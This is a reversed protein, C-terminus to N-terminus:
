QGGEGEENRDGQEDEEIEATPVTYGLAELAAQMEADSGQTNEGASVPVIAWTVVAATAGSRAKSLVAGSGDHPRERLSDFRDMKDVIRIEADMVVDDAPLNPVVFVERNERLKSFFKMRVFDGETSVIQARTTDTPDAGVWASAIGGPVHFEVEIPKQPRGVPSVRFAQVVDRGLAEALAQRGPRVDAGSEALDEREHPDKDLNYVSEKGRSTVYKEGLAISAWQEPGYLVRGFALAREALGPDTGNAAAVLSRGDAKGLTDAPLELLEVLTPAVDLLSVPGDVRRAPLKPSRIVLPVRLLEEHLTHGHELDGHDFFEEGHDAFLVVTADAPMGSLFPGLADNVYLLNQDYRDILYPRLMDRARGAERMLMTRNFFPELGPPDTKAWKRRYKAPEKYPLHLDMFHVMVMADQDRHRELFDTAHQIEYNAGPWNVCNHEGWGRDMEFNSSLYVNGVYAGTAWGGASLTEQLTNSESWWEPQRGTWLARTAPLTWPAVTRADEFVTSQAAWADLDPTTERPYGYTGLHDRRLTDIFALILRKPNASPVFVTPSAVFVHDATTHTDHTVLEIRVAGSAPLPLQVTEFVGVEVRFTAVDAGDVRVTLNAGDSAAGDDIEPPLVGLEMRLHAGPSAVLNWAIRAAAPLLVGHRSIEDLQVSRFAWEAADGGRFRLSEERDTALPYRMTYLGNAPRSVEERIRVVVSERNIEWSGAASRESPDALYALKRGERFLEMEQPQREYYLARPRVPLAAEYARTGSVVGVLNFPGVVAFDVPAPGLTSIPIEISAPVDYDLGVNAANAPHNLALLAGAFIARAGHPIAALVRASLRYFGAKPWSKNLVM